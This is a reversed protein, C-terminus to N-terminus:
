ARGPAAAPLPRERSSLRRALPRAALAVTAALCLWAFLDGVRSYLTPTGAVPLEVVLAGAAAFHDTEGLLRGQADFAGSIGFSAPRLLPVGNEIARFAAMELHTRKVAAWDNAPLIFLDAGGRGAQRVLAPDDGDFCIATAVRGLATAVVPLRGDGAQMVREEWGVVPHSKLYTYDVAGTPDVLVTKNQFRKPGSALVTGMGMALYIRERAALRKARELQAAEDSELVLFNMEPWAVLRAGARAERETRSFFRDHLLELKAAVEGEVPERGDAIRFMESAGFVDHPFSVVAARVTAPQKGGLRWGGCLLVLALTSAVALALPRLLPWAFGREWAWELSSALWGVLFSIGWIGTLSALQMLPLDGYQTYGLAYWSAPGEPLKSRLLEAAVLAAPFVLTQPWARPSGVLAREVVFPAAVFLALSAVLVFYLPGAVPVTGRYAVVLALYALLALRPLAARAPLARFGHLLFALSLWASVRAVDPLWAGVVLLAAGCAMWLTRRGHAM